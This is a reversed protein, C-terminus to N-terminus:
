LIALCRRIQAEPLHFEYLLTRAIRQRQSDTLQYISHVGYGPLLVKDIRRCVDLDQLQNQRYNRANENKLLLAIDKESYGPEVDSLHIPKGSGDKEQDRDWTEDTLRNMQYLFNRPSAYFHEVQRIEMFSRRLFVGDANMEYSDPFESYRPLYTRITERNTIISEEQLYGLDRSFIDRATCYPYGFASAAAGHHLANRIIYNNLVIHHNLGEVRLVFIGPEGMRGSRGYKRNFYKTYSMRLLSGFRLPRNVFVNLHVHNSMEADSMVQADCSYARLALLNIFMGHDEEDRFMVEGHSTFCIHYSEKMSAFNAVIIRTCFFICPYLNFFPM